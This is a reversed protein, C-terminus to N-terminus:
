LAPPSPLQSLLTKDESYYSGYPWTPLWDWEPMVVLGVTNLVYCMVQIQNAQAPTSAGFQLQTNYLISSSATQGNVIVKCPQQASGEANETNTTDEIFPTPAHESQTLDETPVDHGCSVTSNRPTNSHEEALAPDECDGDSVGNRPAIAQQFKAHKTELKERKLYRIGCANCL